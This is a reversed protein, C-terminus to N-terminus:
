RKRLPLLLTLGGMVLLVITSPEPVIDLQCGNLAHWNDTITKVNFSITGTSDTTGNFTVYAVGEGASIDRSAVTTDKVINGSPDQLTIEGAQGTGSGASYVVLTFPTSAPLNYIRAQIPWGDSAGWGPAELYDTMLDAPNIPENGSTWNSEGSNNWMAIQVGASSSGTSDVINAYVPNGVWAGNTFANWVDGSAGLVAAGSYTPSSDTGCDVNYLTALASQSGFALCVALLAFTLVLRNKM